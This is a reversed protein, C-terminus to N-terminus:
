KKKGASFVCYGSSTKRVSATLGKKHMTAQKKKAEAKTKSCAVKKYTRKKATSKRKKM